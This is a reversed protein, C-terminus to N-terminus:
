PAFQPRIIQAGVHRRRGGVALVNVHEDVVSNHMTQFGRRPLDCVLPLPYLASSVAGRREKGIALDVADVFLTRRCGNLGTGVELDEAHVLEVALRQGARHGDPVLDENARRVVEVADLLFLFASTGCTVESESPSGTAAQKVVSVRTTLFFRLAPTEGADSGRCSRKPDVRGKGAPLRRYM